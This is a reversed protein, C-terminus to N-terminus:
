CPKKNRLYEEIIKLIDETEEITLAESVEWDRTWESPHNSTDLEANTHDLVVGEGRYDAPHGLYVAFYGRTTICFVLNKHM